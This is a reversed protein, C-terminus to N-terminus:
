IKASKPNSLLALLPPQYVCYIVKLAEKIAFSQRRADEAKKLLLVNAAAGRGGQLVLTHTHSHLAPRGQEHHGPHSQAAAGSYGRGGVHETSCERPDWVVDWLLDPAPGTMSFYGSSRITFKTEM